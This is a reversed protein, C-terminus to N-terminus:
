DDGGEALEVLQRGLARNTLGERDRYEAVVQWEQERLPLKVHKM